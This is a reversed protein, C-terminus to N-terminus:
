ELSDLYTTHSELFFRVKEVVEGSIGIKERPILLGMTRGKMPGGGSVWGTKKFGQQNFDMGTFYRSWQKTTTRVYYYNVGTYRFDCNGNIMKEKSQVLAYGTVPMPNNQCIGDTLPIDNVTKNDESESDYIGYLDIAFFFRSRDLSIYPLIGHSPNEPDRPIIGRFARYPEMSPWQFELFWNDYTTAAADGKARRAFAGLGAQPASIVYSRPVKLIWTAGAPYRTSIRQGSESKPNIFLELELLENPDQACSTVVPM